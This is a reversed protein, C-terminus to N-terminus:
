SLILIQLILIQPLGNRLGEFIIKLDQMLLPSNEDKDFFSIYNRYEFFM